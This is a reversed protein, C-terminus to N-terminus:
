AKGSLDVGVLRRGSVMAIERESLVGRELAEALPLIRGVAEEEDNPPIAYDRVLALALAREDIGCYGRILAELFRRCTGRHVRWDGSPIMTGSGAPLAYVYTWAERVHGDMM